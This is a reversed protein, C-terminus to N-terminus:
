DTLITPKWGALLAIEAVEYKYTVQTIREILELIDAEPWGACVPRIRAGVDRRIDALARQREATRNGGNTM